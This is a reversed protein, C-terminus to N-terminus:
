SLPSSTPCYYKCLLCPPCSTEQTYIAGLEKAELNKGHCNGVHVLLNIPTDAPPGLAHIIGPTQNLYPCFPWPLSPEVKETIPPFIPNWLGRLLKSNLSSSPDESLLHWICTTGPLAPHSQLGTTCVTGIDKLPPLQLPPCNPFLQKRGRSFLPHNTIM